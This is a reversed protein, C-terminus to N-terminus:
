PAPELLEVRDYYALSIPRDKPEIRAFPRSWAVREGNSPAVKIERRGIEGISDHFKVTGIWPETIWLIGVTTSEEVRVLDGVELGAESGRGARVLALRWRRRADRDSPDAAVRRELARIESDSM